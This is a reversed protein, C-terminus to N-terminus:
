VYITLFILHDNRRCRSPVWLERPNFFHAQGFMCRSEKLAERYEGSFCCREDAFRVMLTLMEVKLMRVNMRAGEGGVAEKILFM